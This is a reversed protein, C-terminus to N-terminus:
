TLAYESKGEPFVLPISLDSSRFMQRGHLSFLFNDVIDLRSKQWPLRYCQSWQALAASRPRQLKKQIGYHNEQLLKTWLYQFSRCRQSLSITPQDPIDAVDEYWVGEHIVVGRNATTLFFDTFVQLGSIWILEGGGSSVAPLGYDLWWMLVSEVNKQRCRKVLHTSWTWSRLVRERGRPITTQQQLSQGQLVEDVEPTGDPEDQPSDPITAKRGVSLFVKFIEHLLTRSFAVQSCTREWLDWFIQPRNINWKGAIRDVIQNHWFAWLELESHAETLECHSMVKCISIRDEKFHSVADAFQKWLDSHSGNAKVMAGRLIRQARRVVALCHSWIRAKCGLAKVLQATKVMATLEGRYSSQHHGVLHGFAVVHHELMSGQSTAVTIAWSAFRLKQERPFQCSGDVFFDLVETQPMKVRSVDHFLDPLEEFHRMLELWAESVVPWGHEVLCRPLCPILSPWPFADRCGQFHECQWHRHYFSDPQGCWDCVRDKGRAEKPKYRDIFLTGDLNCRLYKQDSSGFMDLGRQLEDLDANQIGAFSSRHCLESAILKPWSLRIRQRLSDIHLDFVSFTGLQDRFCASEDLEWGLRSLRSALVAAPGNSPVQVTKTVLGSLMSELQSIRGLERADRCTQFIAWVEPDCFQRFTALLAHPNAGIQNCKLGKMAGARLSNFHERGVHVISVAYMSRPWAIQLLAHLKAPLPALSARLKKWLSKLSHIRQVVTANGAKRCLNQHAGLDRVALATQLSSQKLLARDDSQAAWACSKNTDIVLDLMSAFSIIADWITQFLQPNDFIVQWDDVYSIVRCPDMAQSRVWLEFLWDIISMAFVSLACGEPFGVCSQLANGTSCRVRFRRTQASVFSAWATLISPPFSLCQLAKWIPLRPLANFARQIDVLIGQTSTGASHSLEVLQSIEYWVSRSQRNPVGGKVSEPLYRAMTTLASKARSSSWVRYVMSFVTVPRYSDIGGDGKQKDLSSVFGTAVQPPWPQGQEVSQYMQVIAAAGSDPLSMLDQKSVGDPGTASRKKKCAVHQRLLSITWPPFDWQLKPLTREAFDFIRTWHSLDLHTLKIWRPAWVKEFKTLIDSDSCAVSEQRVEDGVQLGSVTELWVQDQHSEIIAFANGNSVLPLEQQFCACTSFVVSVDDVNVAEIIASRSQVITDVKSPAEKKCDQFVYALDLSRRQKAGLYRKKALTSEFARVHKQFLDFMLTIQSVQPLLVPFGHPFICPDGQTMWWLAFGAGFGDAYRIANWLELTKLHNMPKPTPCKLARELAQLRRLQRVRKAHLRSIGLYGPQCDGSRAVKCPAVSQMIAKVAVTQGRGWQSRKSKHGAPMQQFASQEISRWMTAYAVGPSLSSDYVAQCEWESPWEVQQPVFWKYEWLPAPDVNFHATVVSHDPWFDDDVQVRTLLTQLERSIWIQDIKTSGRGTPRESVGWRYSAIEQVECFGLDRLRDTQTLSSSEFNFDGCVIRPGQTQCGIREVLADLLCETQVLPQRHTLGTPYGYCMGIQIWLGHVFMGAVQLRSTAMLSADIDHPLKRSPFKSLLAVGAYTGIDTQGRPRCPEGPIVYKYDSQLAKLGKKLNSVGQATLHTESGVWAHGPLVSLQDTKANWGSANFIGFQWTSDGYPGPNAAEGIRVLFGMAMLFVFRACCVQRSTQQVFSTANLVKPSSRAQRNCSHKSPTSRFCEPNTGWFVSCMIPM